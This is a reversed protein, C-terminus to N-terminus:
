VWVIRGLACFVLGVRIHELRVGTLRAVAQRYLKMQPEYGAARAQMAAEDAVADTKFDLITAQTWAGSGDRDLVVRDLVGSVWQGEHLMDFSRETWAERGGKGLTFWALVEPNQLVRLVSESAREFGAQGHLGLSRWHLALAEAGKGDLWPTVEFLKHV